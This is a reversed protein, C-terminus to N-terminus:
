GPSKQPQPYSGPVDPPTQSLKWSNSEMSDPAEALELEENLSALHLCLQLDRILIPTPERECM